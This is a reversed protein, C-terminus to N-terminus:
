LDSKIVSQKDIDRTEKIIARSFSSLSFFEYVKINEQIKNRKVYVSSEHLYVIINISNILNESKEERQQSKIQTRTSDDHTNKCAFVMLQKWQQTKIAIHGGSKCSSIVSFCIGDMLGDRLFNSTVCALCFHNILKWKETKKNPTSAYNSIKTSKQPLSRRTKQKDTTKDRNRTVAVYVFIVACGM